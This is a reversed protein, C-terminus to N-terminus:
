PSDCHLASPELREAVAHEGHGDGQEGQVQGDGSRAVALRQGGQQAMLPRGVRGVGDAEKGDADDPDVVVRQELVEGLDVPRQQEDVQQQQEERDRDGEGGGGGRGVQARVVRVGRQGHGDVLAHELAHRDAERQQEPPGDPVLV